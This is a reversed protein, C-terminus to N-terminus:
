QESKKEEANLPIGQDNIEVSPVLPPKFGYEMQLNRGFQPSRKLTHGNRWRQFEDYAENHSTFPGNYTDALQETDSSDAVSLDHPLTNYIYRSGKSWEPGTPPPPPPKLDFRIDGIKFSHQKNPSSSPSVSKPQKTTKLSNAASTTPKKPRAQTHTYITNSTSSESSPTGRQALAQPLLKKLMRTYYNQLVKPPIQLNTPGRIGYDGIVSQDSWGGLANPHPHYPPGYIEPNENYEPLPQHAYPVPVAVPVRIPIPVPRDVLKEVVKEVEVPIEKEVIKEVVKEVPYPIRKEVIKEVPYPRDVYREVHVPVPVPEPVPYPVPIHTEVIEQVPYPRDIYQQVHVPYPIHVPREVIKEVQQTVVQEVVEKEVAPQHEETHPQHIEQTNQESTAHQTQQQGPHPDPHPEAPQAYNQQVYQVYEQPHQQSEYGAHTHENSQHHNPLPLAQQQHAYSSAEEQQEPEDIHQVNIPNAALSAYEKPVFIYDNPHVGEEILALQQAYQIPYHTHPVEARNAPAETASPKPTQVTAQQSQPPIFAAPKSSSQIVTPQKQQQYQQPTYQPLPYITEHEEVLKGDKETILKNHINVSKQVEVFTYGGHPRRVIAPPTPPVRQPHQSTAAGSVAASVYEHPSKQTYTPPSTQAKAFQSPPTPAHLTVFVVSHPTPTAPPRHSLPTVLPYQYSQQNFSAPAAVSDASIQTEQKSAPSPASPQTAYQQQQQSQTQTYPQQPTSQHQQQQINQSQAAHQAQQISLQEQIQEQQQQQLKLKEEEQQQQLRRTLEVAQQQQHQKEYAIQQQQQKGKKYEHPPPHQQYIAYHQHIPQQRQQHQQLEKHFQQLQQQQEYQPTPQFLKQQRKDATLQQQQYDQIQQQQQQKEQFQLQQQQSILQAHQQQQQEQQQQQLLFQQQQQLLQQQQQLLQQEKLYRLQAADKDYQLLPLRPLETASQKQPQAANEVKAAVVGSEVSPNSAQKGDQIFIIPQLANSEYHFSAKPTSPAAGPSLVPNFNRLFQRSPAEQTPSLQYFTQEAHEQFNDLQQSPAGHKSVEVFLEAKDDGALPEPEPVFIPQQSISESLNPSEGHIIRVNAETDPQLRQRQVGVKYGYPKDDLPLRQYVRQGVNQSEAILNDEASIGEMDASNDDSLIIIPTQKKSQQEVTGNANEQSPNMLLSPLVPADAAARNIRLLDDKTILNSGDSFEDSGTNTGRPLLQLKEVVIETHGPRLERRYEKSVSTEYSYFAKTHSQEAKETSPTTTTTTSTPSTTLKAETTTAPTAVSASKSIEETDQTAVAQTPQESAYSFRFIDTFGNPFLNSLVENVTEVRTARTPAAKTHISGDEENIDFHIYESSKSKQPLTRHTDTDSSKTDNESNIEVVPAPILEIAKRLDKKESDHQLTNSDNRVVNAVNEVNVNSQRLARALPSRVIANTAATSSTQSKTPPSLLLQAPSLTQSQPSAASEQQRRASRSGTTPTLFNSTTTSTVNIPPQLPLLSTTTEGGRVGESVARIKNGFKPVNLPTTGVDKQSRSRSVSKSGNVQTTIEATTAAKDRSTTNNGVDNVRATPVTKTTTNTTTEAAITATLLFIGIVAPLSLKTLM